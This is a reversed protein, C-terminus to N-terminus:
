NSFLHRTRRRREGFVIHIKRIFGHKYTNIENHDEQNKAWAVSRCPHSCNLNRFNLYSLCSWSCWSMLERLTKSEFITLQVKQGFPHKYWRRSRGVPVIRHHIIEFVLQKKQCDYYINLLNKMNNKVPKSGKLIHKKKTRKIENSKMWM